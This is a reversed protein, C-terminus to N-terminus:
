VTVHFNKYHSKVLYVKNTVPCTPTPSPQITASSTSQMITPQIVMLTNSSLQVSTRITSELLRSISEEMSSSPAIGMGSSPAIDMSISSTIGMSSSPAIGTNSSRSSSPSMTPM